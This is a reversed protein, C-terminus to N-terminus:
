SCCSRERSSRFTTTTATSTRSSTIWRRLRPSRHRPGDAAAALRISLILGVAFLSSLLLTAKMTRFM